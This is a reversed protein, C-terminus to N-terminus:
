GWIWFNFYSLSVSDGRSITHCTTGLIARSTAMTYHFNYFLSFTWGNQGHILNVKRALDEFCELSGWVLLCFLPFWCGFGFDDNVFSWAKHIM